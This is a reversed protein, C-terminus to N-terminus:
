KRSKRQKKATKRHKKRHSKISKSKRRKTKRKGGAVPNGAETNPVNNDYLGTRPNLESHTAINDGAPAINDDALAATEPATNLPVGLLKEIIKKNQIGVDKSLIINNNEIKFSGSVISGQKMTSSVYQMRGQGSITGDQNKEYGFMIQTAGVRANAFKFGPMETLTGIDNDLTKLVTRDPKIIGDPFIAQRIYRCINANTKKGVDDTVSIKKGSKSSLKNVTNLENDFTM